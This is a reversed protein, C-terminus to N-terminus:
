EGTGQGFYAKVGTKVAKGLGPSVRGLLEGGIGLLSNWIAGQRAQYEERDKQQWEMEQLYRGTQDRTFGEYDGQLVQGQGFMVQQSLRAANILDGQSMGLADTALQGGRQHFNQRQQLVDNLIDNQKQMADISLKNRNYDEQARTASTASVAEQYSKMVQNKFNAAQGGSDQGAFTALMSARQEQAREVAKITRQESARRQQNIFQDFFPTQENVDFIFQEFEQATRKYMDGYNRINQKLGQALGAQDTFMRDLAARHLDYEEYNIPSTLRQEELDESIGSKPLEKMSNEFSTVADEGTIKKIDDGGWGVADEFKSWTPELRATAEEEQLKVIDRSVGMLDKLNKLRYPVPEIINELMYREGLLKREKNRLEIMQSAM